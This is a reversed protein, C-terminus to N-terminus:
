FPTGSGMSPPMGSIPMGMAGAGAGLQPMMRAMQARQALAAALQPPPAMGGSRAADAPLGTTPAKAKHGEKGGRLKEMSRVFEPFGMGAMFMLMQM